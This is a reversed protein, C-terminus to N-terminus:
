SVIFFQLLIIATKMANARYAKPTYVKRQHPFPLLTRLLKSVAGGMKMRRDYQLTQKSLISIIIIDITSGDNITQLQGQTHFVQMIHTFNCSELGINIDPLVHVTAICTYVINYHSTM